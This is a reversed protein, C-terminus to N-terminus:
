LSKFILTMAKWLVNCLINPWVRQSAGVFFYYCWGCFFQIAGCYNLKPFCIINYWYIYGCYDWCHVDTGL